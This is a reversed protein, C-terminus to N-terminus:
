RPIVEKDHPKPKPAAKIRSGMKGPTEKESASGLTVVGAIHDFADPDGRHNHRLEFEDVYFPMYADSM